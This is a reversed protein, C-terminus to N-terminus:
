QEGLMKKPSGIFGAKDLVNRIVIVTGDVFKSSLGYSTGDRDIVTAHYKWQSDKYHYLRDGIKFNNIRYMNGRM